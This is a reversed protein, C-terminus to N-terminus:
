FFFDTTQEVETLYGVCISMQSSAPRRPRQWGGDLNGVEGRAGLLDDENDVKEPWDSPKLVCLFATPMPTDDKANTNSV